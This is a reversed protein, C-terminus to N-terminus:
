RDRGPRLEYSHTKIGRAALERVVREGTEVRISWADAPSRTWMALWCQIAQQELAM